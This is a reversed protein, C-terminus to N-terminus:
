PLLVDRLTFPLAITLTHRGTYLLRAPPSRDPLPQYLLSLEERIGKALAGQIEGSALSFRRGQADLLVMGAADASLAAAGRGRWGRSLVMLRAPVGDNVLEPAPSTLAVRIRYQGEETPAAEIVQMASGDITPVVRGAAKLVNDVTALTELPTRVKAAITGTLEKLRESSTTEALPFRIPVRRADGFPNAPAEGIGDWLVLAEEPGSGVAAGLGGAVVAQKLAEGKEPIARDVRVALTGLWHLHPEPIVELLVFRGEDAKGSKATAHHPPLARIRVAGAHCTPWQEWAGDALLLPSDPRPNSGWSTRDFTLVKQEGSEYEYREDQFAAPDLGRDVLGAKRCFQELGDWLSTEGTDLTIRRDALPAADGSIKLALGTTRAMEAVAEAVPVDRYTLRVRSPKLLRDSTLRLEIQRVLKQSRRRVEPDAAEVAKRLDDLAAPGLGSLEGTAAERAGFDDSGLQDILVAIRRAPEEAPMSRTVLLVSASAFLVRLLKTV